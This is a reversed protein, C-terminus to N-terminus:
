ASGFFPFLFFFNHSLFLNPCHFGISIYCLWHMQLPCHCNEKIDSTSCLLVISEVNPMTCYVILFLIFFWFPHHRNYPAPKKARDKRKLLERTEYYHTTHAFYFHILIILVLQLSFVLSCMHVCACLCVCHASHVNYCKFQNCIWYRQYPLIAIMVANYNPGLVWSM